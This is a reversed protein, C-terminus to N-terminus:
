NNELKSTKKKEVEVLIFWIIIIQYEQEEPRYPQGEFIYLGTTVELCFLFVTLFDVELSWPKWGM